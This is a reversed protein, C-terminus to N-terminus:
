VKKGTRLAAQLNKLRQQKEYLITQLHEEKNRNNVLKNVAVGSTTDFTMNNDTMMTIRIDKGQSKWLLLTKPLFVLCLVTTNIFILATALIIFYLNVDLFILNLSPILVALIVAVTYVSIAIYKSDNLESVRINRTEWALFVGFTLLVAKVGYIAVSFYLQYSSTCFEVVPVIYVEADPKTIDLQAEFRHTSIDPDTVIILVGLILVDIVVPILVGLILKSCLAVRKFKKVAKHFIVHIRYTKMFLAGFTASFGICIFALRVKCLVLIYSDSLNSTDQGFLYISTYLLLSGSSIFNNLKPSSIKIARKHRYVVNIVSFFLSLCIGFSTLTYLTIRSLRNIQVVKLIETKGDVPTFGKQWFFTENEVVTINNTSISFKLIDHWEHVGNAYQVQRIAINSSRTGDSNFSMHGNLGIFNVKILNDNIINAIQFDSYEFDELSKNLAALDRASSNLALVLSMCSDYFIGIYASSQLESMDTIQQKSPRLGNFNISALNPNPYIAPKLGIFHSSSTLKDMEEFTCSTVEVQDIWWDASTFGTLMWVYNRGWLGFRYAQCMLKARSGAYMETFIIRADHRILSKIQESADDFDTVIENALVNIGERILLLTLEQSTQLFSDVRENVMAVRKWGMSKIFAVKAPTVISTEYNSQVTLPYKDRNKLSPSTAGVVQNLGYSSAVENMEICLSSFTPGIIGLVVPPKYIFEYLRQLMLGPVDRPSDTWRLFLEYGDLIGEIENAHKVCTETAQITLDSGLFAGIYLPIRSTDNVTLIADANMTLVFCILIPLKMKSM